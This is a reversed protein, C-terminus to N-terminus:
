SLFLMDMVTVTLYPVWPPASRVKMPLHTRGIGLRRGGKLGESMVIIVLNVNKSTQHLEPPLSAKPGQFEGDRGEAQKRREQAVNLGVNEYDARTDQLLGCLAAHPESNTLLAM